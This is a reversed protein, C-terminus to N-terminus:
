TAIRLQGAALSFQTRTAAVVEPALAYYDTTAPGTEEREILIVHADPSMIVHHWISQRVNYAVSHQMAIVFSQTPTGDADDFLILDAEGATLIFVENTNWHREVRTFNEPAVIEFCRLMAVKWGSFTLVSQYTQAFSSGIEVLQELANASM